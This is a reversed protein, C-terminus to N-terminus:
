ETAEGFLAEMKKALMSPSTRKRADFALMGQIISWLEKIKKNRTTKVSAGSWMFLIGFIIGLSFIDVRTAVKNSVDKDMNVQFLHFIDAFRTNNLGPITFNYKNMRKKKDSSYEPPYYPYMHERIPRNDEGFIDNMRKMLSFDILYVRKGKITINNVTIDQHVVRHESMKRLGHIVPLFKSMLALLKKEDGKHTYMYRGLDIGGYEMLIQPYSYGVGMFPCMNIEDSKRPKTKTYCSGKNELTFEHQPDIRDIMKFSNMESHFEEVDEFVKGIVKTTSQKKDKCAIHPRFICGYSGKAVYPM